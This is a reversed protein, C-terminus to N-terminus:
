ESRWLWCPAEHAVFAPVFQANDRDIIGILRVHKADDIAVLINRPYFNGHTFYYSPDAGIAEPTSLEALERYTMLDGNRQEAWKEFRERMARAPHVDTKALETKNYASNPETMASRNRMMARHEGLAAALFDIDVGRRLAEAGYMLMGAM